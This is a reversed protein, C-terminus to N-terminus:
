RPSVHCSLSRPVSIPISGPSSTAHLRGYLPFPALKSQQLPRITRKFLVISSRICDSSSFFSYLMAEVVMRITEGHAQPPAEHTELHETWIRKGHKGEHNSKTEVSEIGYIKLFWREAQQENEKDGLHNVCPLCPM